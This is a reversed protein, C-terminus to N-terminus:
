ENSDGEKIIELIKKAGNLNSIGICAVKSSSFEVFDSEKLYILPIERVSAIHEIKKITNSSVSENVLLLNVKRRSKTLSDLGIVLSNSRKLLNLFNVLEKSM